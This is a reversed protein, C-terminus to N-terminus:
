MYMKDINIKFCPPIPVRIWSKILAGEGGRVKDNRRGSLVVIDPERERNKM